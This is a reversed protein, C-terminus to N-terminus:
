GPIEPATGWTPSYADWPLGVAVLGTGNANVIFLSRCCQDPYSRDSEFVIRDGSPSYSPSSDSFPYPPTTVRKLGTANQAMTYISGQPRDSYLNSAFAIRRGDPRWDPAYALLWPPTLRREHTGDAHSVYIASTIGGLHWRQYALHSGDASSSADNYSPGANPTIAQQHTGDVRVKSIGGDCDSFACDTYIVWRGDDSFAPWYANHDPKVHTLRRPYTGDAGVIWIESRGSQDTDYAILSGDPSWDPDFAGGGGAHTVHVISSGDPDAAYIQCRNPCRYFAIRTDATATGAAAPAGGASLSAAVVALSAVLIPLTRKM